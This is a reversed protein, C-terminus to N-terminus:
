AASAQGETAELARDLRDKIRSMTLFLGFTDKEDFSLERAERILCVLMRLEARAEDLDQWAELSLGTFPRTPTESM